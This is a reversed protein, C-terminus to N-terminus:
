ESAEKVAPLVIDGIKNINSFIFSIRNKGDVFTFEEIINKKVNIYLKYNKGESYTISSQARENFSEIFRKIVDSPTKLLYMNQGSYKSNSLIDVVMSHYSNYTIDKTTFAKKDERNGTKLYQKKSMFDDFEYPQNQYDDFREINNKYTYKKVSYNTKTNEKSEKYYIIEANYSYNNFEQAFNKDSYNLKDEDIKELKENKNLLTLGMVIVIFSASFIMIVLYLGKKM